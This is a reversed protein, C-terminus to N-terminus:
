LRPFRERLARIEGQLRAIAPPAQGYQFTVRAVSQATKLEIWEAGGDACDPCGHVGAVSTFVNPEVAAQIRQWESPSLPLTRTRTPQRVPDRSTETLTASTPSVELMTTCYGACMGFSTGAFLAFSQSPVLSESDAETSGSCAATALLVIILHRARMM